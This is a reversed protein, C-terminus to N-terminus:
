RETVACSEVAARERWKHLWKELSIVPLVLAGVLVADIWGHLSLPASGFLTQLPPFYCFCAQLLLLVGIGIFIAPNSTLGQTLLSDRLSRCNLLYFIQTFIISTVCITQAEALARAHSVASIPLLGVARFYEWLFLSCAGVAM